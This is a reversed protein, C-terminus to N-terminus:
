GAVAVLVCPLVAALTVGILFALPSAVAWLRIRNLSKATANNRATTKDIREQVNKLEGERLTELSYQKQYLNMPENYLAPLDKAQLVRLVLVACLVYM